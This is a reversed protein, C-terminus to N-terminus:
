ASVGAPQRSQLEAELEDFRFEAIPQWRYRGQEWNQLTDV